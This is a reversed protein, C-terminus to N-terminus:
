GEEKNALAARARVGKDNTYSGLRACDPYECSTAGCAETVACMRCDNHTGAYFSLAERLLANEAELKAVKAEAVEARIEADAQKWGAKYERNNGARLEARAEDREREMREGWEIFTTASKQGDTM